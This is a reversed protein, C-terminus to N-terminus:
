GEPRSRRRDASAEADPQRARMAAARRWAKGRKLGAVFQERPLVLLTSKYLELIVWNAQEAHGAVDNVMMAHQEPGRNDPM